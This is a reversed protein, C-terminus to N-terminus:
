VSLLVIGSVIGLIGVYQNLVLREKYFIYALVATVLPYAAAIPTVFSVPFNSIGMNLAIFGLVDMAGVLLIIVLIPSLLDIKTEIKRTKMYGFLFITSFTRSILIPMFWGITRIIPAVFVVISGWALMAILGEKVGTELKKKGAGFFEQINTSVLLCGVILLFISFIQLGSLKEGLFLVGMIVAVAAWMSSIPSAISVLGNELARYFFIYGILVALGDLALILLYAGLPIAHAFALSALYVLVLGLFQTWLLAKYDGLKKCVAVSFFDMLGWAFMAMLGLLLGGNM